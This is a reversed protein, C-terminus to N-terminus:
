GIFHLDIFYLDILYLDLFYLGIFYLDTFNLDIFYLDIFHFDIFYSKFRLNIFHDFQRLDILLNIFWKILFDALYDMFLNM